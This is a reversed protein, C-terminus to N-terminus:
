FLGEGLHYSRVKVAAVQPVRALAADLRTLIEKSLSEGGPARCLDGDTLSILPKFLLSKGHSLAGLNTLIRNHQLAELLAEGGDDGITNEAICDDDDTWVGLPAALWCFRIPHAYRQSDHDVARPEEEADSRAGEGGCSSHLKRCV